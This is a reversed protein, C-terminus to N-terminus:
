KMLMKLGEIAGNLNEDLPYKNLPNRIDFYAFGSFNENEKIFIHYCFGNTVCVVKVGPLNEAYNFVQEQANFLGESLKKVEVIIKAIKENSHIARDFCVIDAHGGGEVPYELFLNQESWGLADL